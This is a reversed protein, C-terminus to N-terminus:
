AHIHMMILVEVVCDDFCEEKRREEWGM